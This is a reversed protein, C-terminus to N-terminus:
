ADVSCLIRAIESALRTPTNRRSNSANLARRLNFESVGGTRLEDIFAELRTPPMTDDDWKTPVTGLDISMWAQMQHDTFQYMVFFAPAIGRPVGRVSWTKTEHGVLAVHSRGM